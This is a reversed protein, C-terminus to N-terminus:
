ASRLRRAVFFGLRTVGYLSAGLVLLLGILWPWYKTLSKKALNIVLTDYANEGPPLQVVGVTDAYTQYESLMDAFLEPHQGSLDTTEGPDVSLDYLRWQNDGRPPAPRTIKWQGRFLAANGSVEFGFSDQASRVSAQEGTLVPMLSRGYFSDPDYSVGAVDLLTPALDTVHAQAQMLGSAEVGPGTIVLPVRLGGEGTYFKYFSFPASSVSAWEPGIATVSGPQGMNQVSMDFGEIAKIGDLVLNSVPNPLDTVGAEAGNDSTVVIITHDLLGTQRLHEVLRGLHHDAAEMMGANVQMARAAAAQEAASLDEWARHDHPPPALRTTPPTLGLAIARELREERMNDWCADFVGVYRDIYAQQVQIPIHIAQFSLYGFFPQDPTRTDVYDILRDVLYESSYFGEPLSAPEGNEFWSVRDYGPLYHTDDYNSGGTADMVFSRDFGFRHPLNAGVEGIGWKGSVFTQYGSDSLQRALTIQDDPWIMSYGPHQRLRPTLTEVLTGMGVAHNDQGTMLMARSPGCFPSTYFRSFMVGSQALQDITPTQTDSGYAGVDMFGVDDFVVVLVNPRTDQSAASAMTAFVMALVGCGFIYLTKM